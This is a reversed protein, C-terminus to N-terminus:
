PWSCLIVIVVLWITLMTTERSYLPLHVDMSFNNKNLNSKSLIDFICPENVALNEYLNFTMIFEVM